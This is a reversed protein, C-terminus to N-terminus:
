QQTAAAAGPNQLRMEVGDIENVLGMNQIAYEIAHRSVGLSEVLRALKRNLQEDLDSLELTFTANELYDKFLCVAGIPSMWNLRARRRKGSAEDTFEVWRGRVLHPMASFHGTAKLPSNSSFGPSAFRDTRALVNGGRLAGSLSRTHTARLQALSAEVYAPDADVSKAGEDLRSQLLPLNRLLEAREEITHQARVSRLLSELTSIDRRWFDGTAGGNLMDGFLVEKWVVRVFKCVFEPDEVGQNLRSEIAHTASNIASEVLEIEVLMIAKPDQEATADEHYAFLRDIKDAISAFAAVDYVVPLGDIATALSEYSSTGPRLLEPQAIAFESLRDIVQRAPHTDDSLLEPAAIAANITPTQLRLLLAGVHERIPPAALLRNFTAIVISSIMLKALDLGEVSFGEITQPPMPSPDAGDASAAVAPESGGNTPTPTPSFYGAQAGLALGIQKRLNSQLAVNRNTEVTGTSGRASDIAGLVRGLVDSGEAFPSHDIQLVQHLLAILEESTGAPGVLVNGSPSNTVAVIAASRTQVEASKGLIARGYTEKIEILIGQQILYDNALQYTASMSEILAPGFAAFLVLRQDPQCGCHRLGDMLANAFIIPFVPNDRDAINEIDMLHCIRRSLAFVEFNVQEKLRITVKGIAIEEEMQTTDVLELTDLTLRGSSATKAPAVKGDFQRRVSSTMGNQLGGEMSKLHSAAARLRDRGDKERSQDAQMELMDAVAQLRALLETAFQETLRERVAALLVEAEPTLQSTPVSM